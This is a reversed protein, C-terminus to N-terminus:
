AHAPSGALGAALCVKLSRKAHYVRTKVTGEPCDMVRAIESYSLEQFFALHIVERQAPPLREVCTRVSLADGVGAMVDEANATTDAPSSEEIDEFVRDGRKRLRDIIRYRTISLIWTAVSSRGEFRSASKWIELMVENLTDSAAALDNLRQNAFAMIRPQFRQYLDELAREDGEAIRALLAREAENAEGSPRSM